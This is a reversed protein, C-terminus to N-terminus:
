NKVQKLGPTLDYVFAASPMAIHYGQAYDVGLDLLAHLINENEVFEAVTTIDMGKALDCIAKVIAQDARNQHVHRIFHGDIKLMDIPLNKLYHFSSYGIGFDDLALKCGLKRLNDVFKRAVNFNEVAATETVEFILKSPDAEFFELASEVLEMFAPDGFHRGSLNIALSVPQSARRSQGQVEIAKKIVWQDIERILGFREATDLFTGPYILDGNDDQMRLLVEYHSISNDRLDLIPQYHIVFLDEQLARTIRDEWHIKAKMNDLEQDDPCYVHIRSRGSRKITYMAADAKALLDNPSVGHEPFLAIGISGSIRTKLEAPIKIQQELVKILNHAVHEAAKADVQPLIVGFEDGGLRGITDIERLSSRLAHGVAALCQDGAQHGLTDNIYKFQDLDIFLLASSIQFRNAYAIQRELHEQFRRRNYLGTLPDHNALYVIREETEKQENIDIFLGRLVTEGKPDAEINYISRVWVYDGNRHQLRYDLSYEGQSRGHDQLSRRVWEQDDPHLHEPWFGPALWDEVPYGLLKEAEQSVYRLKLNVPDAELVVANISNLLTEMRRSERELQQHEQRLSERTSELRAALRNFAHAVDGIEDNSDITIRHSFEDRGLAEAGHELKRLNRTLFLGLLIALSLSLVLETGALLMNQQRTKATLQRVHDISYGVGLHGLLQGTLYIPRKIDFVGDQLADAYSNDAEHAYATNGRQALLSGRHDSVRVYIIDPNNELLSLADQLLARDRSALGPQLSLALLASQERVYQELLEAHSSSILRVSNWVLLSLMVAEILVISLIFRSSLRLRM